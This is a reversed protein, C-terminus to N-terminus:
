LWNLGHINVAGDQITVLASRTHDLIIYLEKVPTIAQKCEAVTLGISSAVKEWTKEMDDSEDANLHCTYPGIKKWIESSTEIELKSQLYTYAREFVDLYSTPTGNILWPIREMGIGVDIITIDLDELKGLPPLCTLPLVLGEDRRVM